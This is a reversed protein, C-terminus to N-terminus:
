HFLLPEFEKLAKEYVKRKFFIVERLPHWYDVWRWNDFEPYDSTDLCIKSEDTKLKLLFWRQKQGICKPQSNNRIFNKPLRYHLWDKSCAIVDVHDKNLGTEEKLERYLAQEITEDKLVGGQPFQWADQGQRKCWVVHRTDNTVIIGVNQRYGSDDIVHQDVQMFVEDCYQEVHPWYSCNRKLSTTSNQIFYM